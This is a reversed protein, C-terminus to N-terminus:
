KQKIPTPCEIGLINLSPAVEESKYGPILTLTPLSTILTFVNNPAKKIMFNPNEKYLVSGHSWLSPPQM